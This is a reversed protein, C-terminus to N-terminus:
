NEGGDRAEGGRSDPSTLRQLAQGDLGEHQRRVRHLRLDVLGKMHDDGEVNAFADACDVIELKRHECLEFQEAVFALRDGVRPPRLVPLDDGDDDM